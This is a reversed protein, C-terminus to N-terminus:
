LSLIAKSSYYEDVKKVINGDTDIIIKKDFSDSSYVYYDIKGWISFDGNDEKYLKKAIEKVFNLEEEKTNFKRRDINVNRLGEAMALVHIPQTTRHFHTEAFLNGYKRSQKERFEEFEKLDKEDGFEEIIKKIFLENGMVFDFKFNKKLFAKFGNKELFELKEFCTKKNQYGLKKCIEEKSKTIKIM